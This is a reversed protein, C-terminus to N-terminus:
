TNMEKRRGRSILQIFNHLIDSLIYPVMICGGIPIALYPYFMSIQMGLSTQNLNRLSIVVGGCIMAALFLCLIANGAFNFWFWATEPMRSQFFTISVHERAGFAAAAGLMAVWIMIYRVLEMTGMYTKGIFYRGCVHFVVAFMILGMGIALVYRITRDLYKLGLSLSHHITKLVQLFQSSM